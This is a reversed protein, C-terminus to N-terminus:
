GDADQPRRPEDHDRQVPPDTEASGSLRRSGCTHGPVISRGTSHAACGHVDESILHYVVDLSVFFSFGDPSPKSTCRESAKSFAVDRRPIAPPGLWAWRAPWGPFCCPSTGNGSKKLRELSSGVSAGLM